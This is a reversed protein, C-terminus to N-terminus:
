KKHFNLMSVVLKVAYFVNFFLWLTAGNKILFTIILFVFLPFASTFNTATCVFMDSVSSHNVVCFVSKGCYNNMNSSPLDFNSGMRRFTKHSQVLSSDVMKQLQHSLKMKRRKRFHISM